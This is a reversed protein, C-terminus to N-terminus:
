KGTNEMVDQGSSQSSTLLSYVRGIGSTSFSENLEHSQLFQDFIVEQKKTLSDDLGGVETLDFFPVEPFLECPCSDGEGEM